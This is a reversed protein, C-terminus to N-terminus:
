GGGEEPPLAAFAVRTIGAQKILDLVHIVRRHHAEADASIVVRLDRHSSLSERALQVLDRDGQLATGNVLVPGVTPIAVSLVVQTEQTQVARPLELPVAPTVVLKATVIFIILLVLSVDVLPTINIGAIIGNQPASNV